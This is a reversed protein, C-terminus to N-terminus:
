FYLTTAWWYFDCLQNLTHTPNTKGWPYIRGKSAWFIAGYCKYLSYITNGLNAHIVKEVEQSKPFAGMRCQSPIQPSLSLSLSNTMGCSWTWPPGVGLNHHDWPQVGMPRFLFQIGMFARCLQEWPPHQKTQSFYERRKGMSMKM